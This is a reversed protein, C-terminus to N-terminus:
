KLLIFCFKIEKGTNVGVKTSLLAIDAATVDLVFAYDASV